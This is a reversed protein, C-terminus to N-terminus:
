YFKLSRARGVDPVSGTQELCEVVTGIGEGMPGKLFIEGRTIEELRAIQALRDALPHV